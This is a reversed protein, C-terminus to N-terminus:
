KSSLVEQIYAEIKEVKAKDIGKLDLTLKSKNISLPSSQKESNTCTCNKVEVQLWERGKDLFDFYLKNQQEADGIKRLLTLAHVDKTSKNDKLDALITDSLKLLNKIRSIQAADKGVRKAIEDLKLGADGLRVYGLAEEVLTMNERQINEVQAFVMLDIDSLDKALTVPIKEKKLLEFARKRRHGLVIIYQGDRQTVMIPQLLGDAKISDSLEKITDPNYELRPQYPNDILKSVEIESVHEKPGDTNKGLKKLMQNQIASKAVPKKENM